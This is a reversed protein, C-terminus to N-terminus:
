TLFWGMGSLVMAPAILAAPSKKASGVGEFSATRGDVRDSIEQGRGGISKSSSGLQVDVLACVEFAVRRKETRVYYILACRALAM